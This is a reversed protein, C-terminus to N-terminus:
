CMDSRGPPGPWFSRYDGKISRINLAHPDQDNARTHDAANVARLQKLPSVLDDHQGAAFSQGLQLLVPQDELVGLAAVARHQRNRDDVADGCPVPVVQHDRRNPALLQTADHRHYRFQRVTRVHQDETVGCAEAAFKARREALPNQESERGSTSNAIPADDM